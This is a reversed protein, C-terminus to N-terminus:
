ERVLAIIQVGKLAGMVKRRHTRSVAARAMAHDIERVTLPRSMADLAALVRGRERDTLGALHDDPM